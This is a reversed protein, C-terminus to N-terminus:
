TSEKTTPDSQTINLETIQGRFGNRVRVTSEDHVDSALALAARLEGVTMGTKSNAARFGLRQPTRM